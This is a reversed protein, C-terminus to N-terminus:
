SCSSSSFRFYSFYIFTLHICDPVVFHQYLRTSYVQPVYQFKAIADPYSVFALGTSVSVVESVNKGSEHALNGLIAFITIGGFFSTATDMFSIIM